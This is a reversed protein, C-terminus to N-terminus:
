AGIAAARVMPAFLRSFGEQRRYQSAPYAAERESVRTLRALQEATLSWGTAGLNDILQDRTRAGIIVTSVTPQALLWNIALQPVTKGTEASLEVLLDIVDFLIREEVPPGMDATEHLRSVAPPPAGRRLKGTLRGWGLPSWIMAGVGERAGLPMLEWEYDRGILSYYVQHVVPKPVGHRDARELLQMLAWGPYNSVGWHLVKGTRILMDVTTLIEEVPTHSDFAHLQLIDIRDTGLRALAAETSSILRGRSAGWDGPGDGMPLAIKTSIIAQERRGKLAAGLIEESQGASYVDATDFLTVGAELCLDVLDRAEDVTTSGWNSFLPGSGGFTGAGFSLAPVRLGSQGLHRYDM